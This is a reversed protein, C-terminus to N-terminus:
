KNRFNVCTLLLESPPDARPKETQSHCGFSVDSPHWHWHPMLFCSNPNFHFKRILVYHCVPPLESAMSELITHFCMFYFLEDRGQAQRM